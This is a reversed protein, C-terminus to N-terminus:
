SGYIDIRNFLIDNAIYLRRTSWPQEIWHAYYHPKGPLGKPLSDISENVSISDPMSDYRVNYSLFRLIHKGQQRSTGLIDQSATSMGVVGILSALLVNLTICALLRQM